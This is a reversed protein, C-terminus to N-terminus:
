PSQRHEGDSPSGRPLRGPLRLRARLQPQRSVGRVSVLAGPVASRLRLVELHTQAGSQGSGTPGGPFRLVPHDRVGPLCPPDPYGPPTGDMPWAAVPNGQLDPNTPLPTPLGEIDNRGELTLAGLYHDFSRNEMLLIILHRIPNM